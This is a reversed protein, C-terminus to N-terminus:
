HTGELLAGEGGGIGDLGAVQGEGLVPDTEDAEEPYSGILPLYLVHTRLTHLAGVQMVQALAAM